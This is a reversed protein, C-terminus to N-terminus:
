FMPFGLAAVLVVLNLATVVAVLATLRGPAPSRKYTLALAGLVLLLEVILGAAPWIWERIGFEPDVTSRRRVWYRFADQGLIVQVLAFTGLAWWWARFLV